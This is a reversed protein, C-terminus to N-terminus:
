AQSVPLHLTFQSGLNPVSDVTMYGGHAQAIKQVMSLGLGAGTDHSRAPDVQYFRQWIKDQQEKPIGIGNDRVSLQIEEGERRASVWVQGEERGYKFGNDILNQLLRTLLPASGRVTLGEEVELTLRHAPYAQEACVSRVLDSLDM